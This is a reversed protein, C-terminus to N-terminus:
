KLNKPFAEPSSLMGESPSIGQQGEGEAKRDYSAVLRQLSLKAWALDMNAAVDPDLSKYPGRVNNGQDTEAPNTTDSAHSKAASRYAV